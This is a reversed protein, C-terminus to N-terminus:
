GADRWAYTDTDCVVSATLPPIEMEFAYPDAKYVSNAEWAIKYKYYDGAKICGDTVRCEYVGDETVKQMRLGNQWDCFDGVLFVEAANPAWVRFVYGNGDRHCGYYEYARCGKDFSFFCKDSLAEISM